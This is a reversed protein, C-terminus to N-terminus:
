RKRGRKRPSRVKWIDDSFSFIRHGNKIPKRLVRPTKGNRSTHLRQRKKKVRTVIKHQNVMSINERSLIIKPKTRKQIEKEFDRITPDLNTFAYVDKPVKGTVGGADAIGRYFTSPLRGGIWARRTTKLQKYRKRLQKDSLKELHILSEIKKLTSLSPLNKNVTKKGIVIRKVPVIPMSPIPKVKTKRKRKEHKTWGNTWEFGTERKLMALERMPIVRLRLESAMTDVYQRQMLRGEKAIEHTSGVSYSPGSSHPRSLSDVDDGALRFQQLHDKNEWYTLTDDIEQYDIGHKDCLKRLHIFELERMKM